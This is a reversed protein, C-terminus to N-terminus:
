TSKVPLRIHIEFNDSQNRADITGAHMKIIRKTIALGLGYGSAPTDKVRYFPEFIRDLDTKSIANSDNIFKIDVWGGDARLKIAVDGNEPTFKLANDIINSLATDLSEKDGYICADTSLNTTVRMRKRDIIPKNRKLLSNLLDSLEVRGPHLPTQQIDLKSFKLIRGILRDLEEIDQEM